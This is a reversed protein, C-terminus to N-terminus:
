EERPQLNIWRRQAALELADKFPGDRVIAVAEKPNLSSINDIHMNIEVKGAGVTALEERISQRLKRDPTIHEQPHTYVFGQSRGTFLGEQGSGLFKFVSFVSFVDKLTDWISRGGGAGAESGAGVGQSAKKALFLSDILDRLIRRIFYNKLWESFDSWADESDMAASVAADRIDEYTRIAEAREQERLDRKHEAVREAEDMELQSIAKIITELEDASLQLAEVRTKLEDIYTQSSWGEMAAEHDLQRKLIDLKEKATREAGQLERERQKEDIAELAEGLIERARTLKELRTEESIGSLKNIQEVTKKYESQAKAREKEAAEGIASLRYAEIVANAEDYAALIADTDPPMFGFDSPMEPEPKPPKKVGEPPAMIDQIEKDIRKIDDRLKGYRAVDGAMHSFDIQDFGQYDVGALDKVMPSLKRATAESGRQINEFAAKVDPGMSKIEKKMEELESQLLLGRESRLLRENEDSLKGKAKREDELRRLTDPALDNLDNIVKKLDEQEEASLKAQGALEAYRTGLARIERAHEAARQRQWIILATIGAIAAAVLGIPGAAGAAAWGAAKIALVLKAVASAISAVKAIIATAVIIKSWLIIDDIHDRLFRGLKELKGTLDEMWAAVEQQLIENNAKAWDRIEGTISKVWKVGAQLAPIGIKGLENFMEEIYRAMSRVQKGASSMAADYAGQIRTGSRIAAELAIHQKEQMTLSATTRNAERAFKAYEQELNVFVHRQRLVEPQLTVIGHLIGELAQSTNEMSFIAANRALDALQTAKSLDLELAIMQAVLNSSVQTTIGLKKISEVLNDIYTQSLGAKAATHELVVGLEETRAATMVARKVFNVLGYAGAAGFVAGFIGAARVLGMIENKVGQLGALFRRQELTLTITINGDM